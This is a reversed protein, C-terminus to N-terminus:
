LGESCRVANPIFSLKGGRGAWPRYPQEGKRREAAKRLSGQKGGEMNRVRQSPPAKVTM